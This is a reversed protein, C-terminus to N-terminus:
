THVSVVAPRQRLARLCDPTSYHPSVVVAAPPAARFMVADDLRPAAALLLLLQKTRGTNERLRVRRSLKRRGVSRAMMVVWQTTVPYKDGGTSM